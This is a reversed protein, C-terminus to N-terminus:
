KLKETILIREYVDVYCGSKKLKYIGEIIKDEKKKLTIIQSGYAEAIKLLNESEMKEYLRVKNPDKKQWTAEHYYEAFGGEKVKFTKNDSYSDFKISMRVESLGLSDMIEVLKPHFYGNLMELLEEKTNKSNKM